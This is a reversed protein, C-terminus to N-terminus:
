PPLGGGAWAWAAAVAAAYAGPRLSGCRRPAAAARAPAPTCAPSPWAHTPPVTTAAPCNRMPLRFGGKRCEMAALDQNDLLHIFTPNTTLVPFLKSVPDISAGKHMATVDFWAVEMARWVIVLVFIHRVALIKRNAAFLIWNYSWSGHFPM